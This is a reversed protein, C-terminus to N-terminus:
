KNAEIKDSLEQARQLALHINGCVNESGVMKVIGAKRLSKAVNDNVGSLIVTRGENHSAHLFIELNHLGTADIFTVKRMRIIRIPRADTNRTLEDFQEQLEDRQSELSAIERKNQIHKMLNNEDLFVIIVAFAISVFAYKHRSIWRGLQAISDNM